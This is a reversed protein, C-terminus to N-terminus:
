NKRDDKKELFYEQFHHKGEWGMLNCEEIICTQQYEFCCEM